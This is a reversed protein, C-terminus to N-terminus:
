SSLKPLDNVERLRLRRVQLNAATIGLDEATTLDYSHLVQQLTQM